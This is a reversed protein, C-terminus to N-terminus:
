KSQRFRAVLENTSGDLDLKADRAKLKDLIGQGLVKGLEVGWQDFSNLDWLVGQVFTRHEYLAVLAGLTEPTLKEMLLTNSPRNGAMVKHPALFAVQQQDLGQAKLEAEAEALTKGQMLAQSQAFCNAALMAHHDGLPNHSKLPLIFDAPVLLQGQHLLQHFAHQGNTGESGWIVPGTAYDVTEGGRTCSKGNSEMDLQQVYAPFARLYHDYPLLVHSQAGHINTYWVGLLAMLVPMNEALPASAFHSDMARAGALLGQFHEMGIALAIPLGIASWMSYRGGVWDWMPFCNEAKIGFAEAKPINATVAVFHKALDAFGAGARELWARASLSNSLTEQTTFSKSATVFLTTEPDLGKLKDSIATGDVNAVFHVRVKHQWYPKLAETMVKPGLFSGGIGISVVDTIAKGTFGTWRGELVEAVFAGMRALTANVEALVPTGDVSVNADASGRLATHLVARGETHNIPEGGLLAQIRAPLEAQDALQCLLSLIEDDVWNKSYDLYLGAAEVSLRRGRGPDQEFLTRLPPLSDKRAELAAYGPLRTLATM